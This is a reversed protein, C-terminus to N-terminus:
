TAAASSNGHFVHIMNTVESRLREVDLPKRICRTAGATLAKEQTAAPLPDSSVLIPTYPNNMRVTRLVILGLQDHLLPDILILDYYEMETASIASSGSEVATVMYGSRKLVVETAERSIPNADVVLVRDAPAQINLTDTDGPAIMDPNGTHSGALYTLKRRNVPKAACASAGLEIARRALSPSHAATIMVVPPVPHKDRLDKLASLFSLGDMRPMMQDLIILDYRIEGVADLAVVGNEAEDTRYGSRSLFRRFIRRINIDDDVILVRGKGHRVPRAPPLSLRVELGGNDPSSLTLDGGHAQVIGRASALGLGKAEPDAGGSLPGQTTFFPQMAHELENGTMGPGCDRVRFVAEGDEQRTSLHISPMRSNGSETASAANHLIELIAVSLLAPDAEVPPTNEWQTDLRIGRHALELAWLDTIDCVMATFDTTEYDPAPHRAFHSLKKVIESGRRSARLITDFARETMKTDDTNQRALQAYGAIGTLLNNFEHAIGGALMEMAGFMRDTFQSQQYELTKRMAERDQPGM